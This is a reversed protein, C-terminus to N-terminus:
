ALSVPDNTIPMIDYMSYCGIEFRELVEQGAKREADDLQDFWKKLLARSDGTTIAKNIDNTSMRSSGSPKSLINGMIEADSLNLSECLRQISVSPQDILHEYFLQCSVNQPHKLPYSMDCIWSLVSKQFDSGEALIRQGYDIQEVSFYKALFEPREFYIAAACQWNLRMVSLSQAAPHRMLFLVQMGLEAFLDILWAGRLIKLCARDARFPFHTRRATGTTKIEGQNLLQMYRRIEHEEQSTLDFFRSSEGIKEQSLPMTKGPWQMHRHAFPEDFFWMGKQAALMDGVLTSGGRVAAILAINPFDGQQYNILNRKVNRVTTQLYTM